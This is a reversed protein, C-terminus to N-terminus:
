IKRVELEQHQPSDAPIATLVAVGDKSMEWRLSYSAGAERYEDFPLTVQGGSRTILALLAILVRSGDIAPDNLNM